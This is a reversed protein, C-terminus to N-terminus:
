SLYKELVRILITKQMSSNKVALYSKLLVTHWFPFVKTVTVRCLLTKLEIRNDIESFIWTPLSLIKGEYSCWTVTLRNHQKEMSNGQHELSLRGYSSQFDINKLLNM